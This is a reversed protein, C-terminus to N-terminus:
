LLDEIEGVDSSILLESISQEENEMPQEGHDATAPQPFLKLDSSVVQKSGLDTDSIDLQSYM